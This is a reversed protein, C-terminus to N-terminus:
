QISGLSCNSAKRLSFAPKLTSFAVNFALQASAATFASSPCIIVLIRCLLARECSRSLTSGGGCFKAAIGLM